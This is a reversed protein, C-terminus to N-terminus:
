DLRDTACGPLVWSSLLMMLANTRMDHRCNRHADIERALSSLEAMSSQRLCPGTERHTGQGCISENAICERIPTRAQGLEVIGMTSSRVSERQTVASAIAAEGLIQRLLDKELEDLPEIAAVLNVVDAAPEVARGDMAREIAQAALSEHLQRRHAPQQAHL